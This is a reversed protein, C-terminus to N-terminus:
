VTDYVLLFRAEYKSCKGSHSGWYLQKFHLSEHILARLYQYNGASVSLVLLHIYYIADDNHIRGEDGRFNRSPGTIGEAM